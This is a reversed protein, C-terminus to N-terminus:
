NKSFSHDVIKTTTQKQLQLHVLHFLFPQLFVNTCSMILLLLRELRLGLALVLLLLFLPAPFHVRVLGSGPAVLFSGQLAVLLVELLDVSGGFVPQGQAVLVVELELRPPEPAPLQQEVVPDLLVQEPFLQVLPLSLQLSRVLHEQAVVLRGPLQLLLLLTGNVRQLLVVHPLLVLGLQLVLILVHVPSSALDLLLVSQLHAFLAEKLGCVVSTFTYCSLQGIRPAM